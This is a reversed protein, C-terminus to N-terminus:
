QQQAALSALAAAAREVPASWDGDREQRFLRMTPYWPSDERGLLWRWDPPRPLLVWTPIGMAGALHAVSTDVSIVLDLNAVLAATDSFDRIRASCDLLRMGAPPSAAQAAAAGVQLGYFAAGEIRALPALAPLGLSRRRDDWLEPRGAWVLGVHFGADTALQARCHKAKLPDARIYPDRCLDDLEVGLVQPLSLLPLQADFHPLADGQAVVRALGRVPRLLDALAPQCELVLSGCRSAALRAFRVFQLTDGLGQEAHLLLTKGPLSGGDWLPRDAHRRPAQGAKVQWRWEYERWGESYHGALLLAMALSYHAEASDPDLRVAERFSALAEAHMSLEVYAKGLDNHARADSPNVQLHKLYGSVARRATAPDGAIAALNQNAQPLTPDLELARRYSQIAEDLRGQMHLVAGLNNHAKPQREDLALSRRYSAEAEALRGEDQCRLGQRYLSAADPPTLDRNKFSSM